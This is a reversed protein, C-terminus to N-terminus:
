GQNKNSSSYRCYKVIQLSVLQILQQSTYKLPYSMLVLIQRQSGIELYLQLQIFVISVKMHVYTYGRSSYYLYFLPHM